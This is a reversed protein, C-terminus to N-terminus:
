KDILEEAIDFNAYIASVDDLEDLADMLRMIKGASISDDVKVTNIPVYSLGAETIGLGQTKL